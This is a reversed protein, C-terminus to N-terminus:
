ECIIEYSNSDVSCDNCIPKKGLYRTHFCRHCYLCERINRSRLKDVECRLKVIEERQNEFKVLVFHALNPDVCSRIFENEVCSRCKIKKKKEKKVCKNCVRLGCVSCNLNLQCIIDRKVERLGNLNNGSLCTIRDRM